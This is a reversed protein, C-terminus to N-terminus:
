FKMSTIYLSDLTKNCYIKNHIKKEYVHTLMTYSSFSLSIISHRHISNLNMHNISPGYAFAMAYKDMSKSMMNSKPEHLRIEITQINSSLFFAAERKCNLRLVMELPFCCFASIM